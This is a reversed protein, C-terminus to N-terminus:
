GAREAVVLRGSLRAPAHGASDLGDTGHEQTERDVRVYQEYLHLARDIEDQSPVAPPREDGGPAAPPRPPPPAGHQNRPPLLSTQFAPPWTPLELLARLYAAGYVSRGTAYEMVALLREAGYRQFLAYVDTVEERLRARQRSSLESMYWRASQGLQILAERYLMLQARPKRAFLLAYHSPEVVRQHAGDPARPHEALLVTDRWLVVRDRHVRGSVPAGVHLIPVSYHNGLVPVLAEASVRALHLFGYDHATAPLRGGRPAEAELRAVPAVATAQSPRENAYVLWESCQTALDADDAFTRGALFNGKVWKVLAEVSGKQNGAGPTCAEPHFSFEAALQLLAPHWVAQGQADRGTTVTRMNDFTLVWPVWGLACFCDVLGRFLTEQRMDGTFRVWMWRSYKLRCALFYRTAPAQQTFPFARVEGWDVQLYEAPLGEFRVPVDGVAREHAQALRERRVAERFVAHGGHYPQVPDARALELMRVGSLGERVWQAIQGRYPDVHSRRRRRAPLRDVPEALARAVTTRSHGLARAIERQSAGRKHLLQITSREM